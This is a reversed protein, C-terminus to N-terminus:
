ALWITMGRGISSRIGLFAIIIVQTAKARRSVVGTGIGGHRLLIKLSACSVRRALLVDCIGNRRLRFSEASGVSAYVTPGICTNVGEIISSHLGLLLALM